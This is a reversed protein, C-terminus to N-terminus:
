LTLVQTRQGLLNQQMQSPKQCGEPAYTVRHETM